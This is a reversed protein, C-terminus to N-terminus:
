DYIATVTAAGQEVQVLCAVTDDVVVQWTVRRARTARDWWRVDQAWPGAWATVAGGGRPLASCDVRAPPASLDGRASVVVARDHDDVLTAAVPPDLVRAPAPGPIAGPWPPVEVAVPGAVPGIPAHPAPERPEGWSVWRIREAPTRGGQVVATVV